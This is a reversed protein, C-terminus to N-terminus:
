LGVILPKSILKDRYRYAIIYKGEPLVIESELVESNTFFNRKFIEVGQTTVVTVEAPSSGNLPLRSRFHVPGNAPNPYVSFLEDASVVVSVIKSYSIQGDFDTQKLRYYIVEAPPLSEDQFSYSLTQISNGNEALSPIKAIEEFNIADKSREITFYDNNTETATIWALSVKRDAASATFNLLEIPLLGFNSMTAICPSPSDPCNSVTWDFLSGSNNITISGQATITGTGVVTANNNVLVNGSVNVSGNVQSSFSNSFTLDGTVNITSCSDLVLTTNNIFSMSGTNMVACNHLHVAVTNTAAFAGELSFLGYIDIVSSTGSNFSFKLGGAPDVLNGYVSTAGSGSVSINGNVTVTSNSVITVNDNHSFGPASGGWTSNSNWNGGPPFSNFNAMIVPTPQFNDNQAEAIPLMVLSFLIVVYLRFTYSYRM